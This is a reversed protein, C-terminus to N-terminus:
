PKLNIKCVTAATNTATAAATPPLSITLGTTEQSWRVPEKSGLLQIDDIEQQLLGAEAGLLKLVVRGGEPWGLVIAYLTNGKVTYRVDEATLPPAGRESVGQEKREALKELVPGEGCIKWPRTAFIAERNVDMWATIEQIVALELEDITGDSRVPVSLLLNGNKSVIDALMRIVTQSSKYTGQNYVRRDYHWGGLCTDTQFPLPEIQSSTGREIDLVMCQRQKENLGKGFLVAELRGDNQAISSNYYHAALKMGADSVPWLPLVTDDFYILDPQVQNILDVTRNYFTNCYAQDPRSAGNGWQWQKGIGHPDTLEVGPVHDQCYLQQPDLGEWWKGSGDARTHKGDYPVGAYPGQQDANQATVMWMWAHSAHVSVGFRLGENRAATAWEGIIDRRPGIAVSNWPQHKSNWMDFNDVHNAMAFFYQAGARKYLAMLQSPDWRDAKWQHIVDKFGFESPHGFRELHFKYQRNGELYMNRAYWDGVEPVCQPGWHAWIGFKADRFWEPAEYQALSEWTPQFPGEHMPETTTDVEVLLSDTNEATASFAGVLALLVALVLHRFRVSM